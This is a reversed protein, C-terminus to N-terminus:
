IRARGVLDGDKIVQKQSRWNEVSEIPSKELILLDAKKGEEITGIEDEIGLLKAANKTAAELVHEPKMGRSSMLELEKLQEGFENFSTGADTGMAIKLDKELAHKFSEKNKQIMKEATEVKKDSFEAPNNFIEYSPKATPVWFINKSSILDAAEEDMFKGHEISDVEAEAAAVIGDKGEAHAAVPVKQMDAIEVAAEIEEKTLEQLGGNKYSSSTAMLKIVKAGREIQERVAKMMEDRGDVERCSGSFHGGTSCIGQGCGIVNPGKIMEREVAKGANIVTSDPANLDRLTTIGAELSKRLNEVVRYYRMEDDGHRNVPRCESVLHVHCDILGPTLFDGELDFEKVGEAEIDEEIRDIKDGKILVDKIENNRNVDVLKCNKLLLGM